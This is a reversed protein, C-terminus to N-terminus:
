SRRSSSVNRFKLSRKSASTFKQECVQVSNQAKCAMVSAPKRGLRQALGSVRAATTAQIDNRVKSPPNVAVASYRDIFRKAIEEAYIKQERSAEGSLVLTGRVARVHVSEIGIKKEVAVAFARQHNARYTWTGHIAIFAATFAILCFVLKMRLSRADWFLNLTTM